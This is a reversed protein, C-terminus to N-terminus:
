SVAIVDRDLRYTARERFTRRLEDDSEAPILSATSHPPFDPTWFQGDDVLEFKAVLRSSASETPHLQRAKDYSSTRALLFGEQYHPRKADPPCVANLRIAQLDGTNDTRLTMLDSVVRDFRLAYLYGHREVKSGSANAAADPKGDPDVRLGLAFSAAVRLSSTLDLLPTPWLEYHQVVAWAALPETRFLSFPRWRPLRPREDLLVHVVKASVDALKNWYYDRHPALPVEGIGSERPPMWAKRLLTPLLPYPRRQGRFLLLDHKNMVHLFSVIRVLEEFTNVPFPAARCVEGVPTKSDRLDKPRRENWILWSQIGYVDGSDRTSM